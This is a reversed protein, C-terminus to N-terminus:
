PSDEWRLARALECDSRHKIARIVTVLRKMGYHLTGCREVERCVPCARGGRASWGNREAKKLAKLAVDLRTPARKAAEAAGLAANAKAEYYGPIYAREPDITLVPLLGARSDKAGQEYWRLAYESHEAAAERWASM